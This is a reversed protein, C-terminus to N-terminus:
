TLLSLSNTYFEISKVEYKNRRVECKANNGSQNSNKLLGNGAEIQVELGALVIAVIFVYIAKIILM